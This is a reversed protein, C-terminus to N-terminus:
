STSTEHESIYSTVAQNQGMCHYVTARPIKTRNRNHKIFVHKNTEAAGFLVIIDFVGHM